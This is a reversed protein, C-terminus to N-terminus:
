PHLAGVRGGAADSASTSVEGLTIPAGGSVSVKKLQGEQEFGIWRGDPSFFPEQAGDTGRIPTAELQDLARLYFQNNANYVLHTGDPALAVLHGERISAPAGAPLVISFRTVPPPAPRMMSWGALGTIFALVPAAIWPLVRRWGVPRVAVPVAEGIDPTPTLTEDIEIRVIGIDPIRAKRDKELCRRLLRRLLSPTDPPLATWDPDTKLVSALVHSVTAGEFLRRGTLMEYFVVGFSWIDARKDM